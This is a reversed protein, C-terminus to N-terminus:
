KKGIGRFSSVSESRPTEGPRRKGPGIEKRERKDKNRKHVRRRILAKPRDVPTASFCFRNVMDKIPILLDSDGAPDAFQAIQVITFANGIAILAEHEPPFNPVACVYTYLNSNPDLELQMRWEGLINQDFSDLVRKVERYKPTVPEDQM